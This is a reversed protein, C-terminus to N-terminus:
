IIPDSGKDSMCIAFGYGGAMFCSVRVEGELIVRIQFNLKKKDSFTKSELNQNPIIYTETM